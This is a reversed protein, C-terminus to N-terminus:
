DWSIKQPSSLLNKLSPNGRIGFHIFWKEVLTRASPTETAVEIPPPPPPSPSSRIIHVLVCFKGKGKHPKWIRTYAAFFSCSTTKFTCLALINLIRLAKRLLCKSTNTNFVFEIKQIDWLRTWTDSVISPCVVHLISHRRVWFRSSTSM